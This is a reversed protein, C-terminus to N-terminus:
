RAAEAASAPPAPATMTVAIRRALHLFKDAVRKTTGARFVLTIPAAIAAEHPLARYLVSHAHAGQMSAPVISVGTGSAVLKINFMMREFEAVIRVVVGRRGLM